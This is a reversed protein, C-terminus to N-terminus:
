TRRFCGSPFDTFRLSSAHALAIIQKGASGYGFPMRILNHGFKQRLRPANIECATLVGAHTALRQCCCIPDHERTLNAARVANRVLREFSQRPFADALDSVLLVAEVPLLHFDM